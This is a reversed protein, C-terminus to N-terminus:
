ENKIDFSNHVHHRARFINAKVRKKLEERLKAFDDGSLFDTNIQKEKNNKLTFILLNSVVTCYEINSYAIETKPLIPGNYITLYDEALYIYGKEHKTMYYLGQAAGIVVPTFGLFILMSDMSGDNLYFQFLIFFVGTLATGFGGYAKKVWNKEM